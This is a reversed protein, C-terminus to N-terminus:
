FNLDLKDYSRFNTLKLNTIKMKFGRKFDYILLIPIDTDRYM